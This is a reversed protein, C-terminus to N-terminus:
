LNYSCYIILNTYISFIYLYKGILGLFIELIIEDALVRM